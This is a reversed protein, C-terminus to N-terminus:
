SLLPAVNLKINPTLKGVCSNQINQIKSLSYRTSLVFSISKLGRCIVGLKRAASVASSSFESNSTMIYNFNAGSESTNMKLLEIYEDFKRSRLCVGYKAWEALLTERSINDNSTKSQVFFSMGHDLPSSQCGILDIGEDGHGDTIYIASLGLAKLYLASVFLFEAEKQSAVWNYIDGFESPLPDHGAFNRFNSHRWTLLVSNQNLFFPAPLGSKKWKEIYLSLKEIVLSLWNTSKDYALTQPFNKEILHQTFSSELNMRDVGSDVFTFPLIKEKFFSEAM